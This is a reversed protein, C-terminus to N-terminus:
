RDRGTGGASGNLRITPAARARGAAEDRIPRRAAARRPRRSAVRKETWRYTRELVQGLAVSPEWGFMERLRRNDCNRRRVGQPDVHRLTVGGKGSPVIIMRVLEWRCRSQSGPDRPPGGRTAFHYRYDYGEDTMCSVEGLVTADRECVTRIESLVSDSPATSRYSARSMWATARLTTVSIRHEERGDIGGV